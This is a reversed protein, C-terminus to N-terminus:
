NGGSLVSRAADLQAADGFLFLVDGEMLQHNPGPNPTVEGGRAFAIVSAGTRERLHLEVLSKGVASAGPALPFETLEASSLVCDLTM